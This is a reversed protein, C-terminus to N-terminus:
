MPDTRRAEVIRKPTSGVVPLSALTGEAVHQGHDVGIVENETSPIYGAHGEVLRNNASLNERPIELALEGAVHSVQTFGEGRDVVRVEDGGVLLSTCVVEGGSVVLLNM